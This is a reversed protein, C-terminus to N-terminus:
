NLSSLKEVALKASTSDPYDTILNNLMTKARAVEGNATYVNALKLMADSRKNSDPFGNVVSEFHGQAGQTDNKIILLQGLWYHANPVYVSNPYNELFTKFEPIAADYRKDQMILSVAREYADNENLNNSVMATDATDGTSTPATTIVPVPASYSSSVRTEIEQYLERQRQLIKEIQYGQEETIGRLQSVEDQLSELQQQLELFQLNRNAVMRELTQLRTEFATASMNAQSGAESVPAPAALLQSSGSLLMTALIFKPKIM